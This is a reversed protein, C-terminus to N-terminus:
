PSGGLLRRAKERFRALKRGVTKKSVGVLDAVEEMKMGDVYHHVALTQTLQDMRGLVEVVAHRDVADHPDALQRLIAEPESVAPHRRRSRLRNLCINTTIRYMWHLVPGEGRFGDGSSIVRVFVEQMVDKAEEDSALLSRARRYVVPGYDRYLGALTDRDIIRDYIAESRLEAFPGALPGARKGM